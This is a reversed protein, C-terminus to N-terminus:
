HNAHSMVKVSIVYIPKGYDNILQHREDKDCSKVEGNPFFYWEKIKKVQKGGHIEETHGHFDIVVEQNPDYEAYLYTFIHVTHNYSFSGIPCEWVDGKVIGEKPKKVWEGSVTVMSLISELENLFHRNPIRGHHRDELVKRIGNLCEMDFHRLDGQRM